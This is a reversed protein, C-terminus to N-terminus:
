FVKSLVTEWRRFTPFRSIEEKNELPVIQVSLDGDRFLASSFSPKDLEFSWM